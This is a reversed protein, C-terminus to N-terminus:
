RFTIEIKDAEDQFVYLCFRGAFRVRADIIKGGVIRRGDIRMDIKEHICTQNLPSDYPDHATDATDM